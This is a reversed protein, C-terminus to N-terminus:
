KSQFVFKECQFTKLAIENSFKRQDRRRLNVKKAHIKLQCDRSLLLQDEKRFTSLRCTLRPWYYNGILRKCESLISKKKENEM